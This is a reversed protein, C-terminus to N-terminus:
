QIISNKDNTQRIRGVKSHKQSSDCCSYTQNTHRKSSQGRRRIEHHIEGEPQEGIKVLIKQSDEKDTLPDLSTDFHNAILLNLDSKYKVYVNQDRRGMWQERCAVQHRSRVEMDKDSHCVDSYVPTQIQNSDFGDFWIDFRFLSLARSGKKNDLCFLVYDVVSQQQEAMEADTGLIRPASEDKQSQARL